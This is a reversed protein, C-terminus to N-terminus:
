ILEKIYCNKDDLCGTMQCESKHPCKYKTM